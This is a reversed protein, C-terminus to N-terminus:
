PLRKSSFIKREHYYAGRKGDDTALFAAKSSSVTTYLNLLESMPNIPITVRSTITVTAM